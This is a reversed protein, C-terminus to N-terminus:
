QYKVASERYFSPHICPFATTQVTRETGGNAVVTLTGSRSRTAQEFEQSGVVGIFSRDRLITTSLVGFLLTSFWSLRLRLGCGGLRTYM